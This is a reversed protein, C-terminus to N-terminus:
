PAESAPVVVTPTSPALAFYLGIGTALLLALTIWRWLAGIPISTREDAM